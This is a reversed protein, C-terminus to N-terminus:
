GRMQDIAKFRKHAFALIENDTPHDVTEVGVIAKAVNAHHHKELHHKFHEKGQGPGILLIERYPTLTKALEHFFKEQDHHGKGSEAATHHHHEHKHIGKPVVKGEHLEFLKAQSGDMWVVCASM